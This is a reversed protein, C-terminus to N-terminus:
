RGVRVRVGGTVFRPSGETTPLLGVVYTQDFLNQAGLFVDVRRGVARSILLEVVAYKPLGPTTSGPVTRMNQDDDYQLGVAQVNASVNVLRPNTYAVGVSGRHKPVQPLYKGVLTPNADFERVTAHNYVYGGSIAWSASPQYSLDTQLGQIRTRGLNQRQQTVNAGVQAITVNSVPDTVRNLFWTARATLRQVPEMSIGAEAGTLREPGLQNNALTLTTGVRFQRYLENLTPARFGRSVGGFFSVRDTVHYRAAVRPSFVTDDKDPLSPDNNPTPTGSPVNTELNHADFNRWNDVRAGVTLVLKAVPTVLLQGFAGITRQTGGSVRHLTVTTGTTPDLGDEESDGDVRRWDAGATLQYNAALARTWQLAGGIGSTPVHQELTMRGISRPPTAAPVALFNSHFRESDGFISAELTSEDPLQARVGGSVTTWRTDNAEPKGDITSHKGNDREESFYGGRAFVHVRDTARYDLKMNVNGFKVSVDGDVAGRENARVIAYGDTRFASADLTVGAKGWVDSAVVDFKPSSRSGYQTKVEASRRRAAATLVNIVGGMAYTGYLNSSAGEVVEIREAAEVPMRSWYVWGGFPDNFPVGDVLVLTRSVGSPGIGRLSVGQATPHSALSSTRRFLSFTAVRRLLDDSAVAPSQRIEDQGIVTVMSPVDDVGREGRTATVTVQESVSAPVLVLTIVDAPSAASTVTRRLEAFGSARVVLDVPGAARPVITFRGQPDTTARQEDGGASRAVVVAGAVVGGAADRVVGSIAPATQAAASNQFAGAPGVFPGAALLLLTLFAAAPARRELRPSTM